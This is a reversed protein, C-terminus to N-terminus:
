RSVAAPLRMTFTSGVGLESEVAISGRHRHVIALGLGTGPQAVACPNSSRFFENFLQDQDDASIGIGEDRCSVVVEDEDQSLAVTVSTGPRSYKVANSLVNGLATDLEEPDGLAHVQHAPMDLQITVGARRATLANLEGLDELVPQLAVPAPIIATAPDGVKSLLLLDEIVRQLRLAGREIAGLSSRTTGTHGPDTELMELHGLIATLPNKLEHAVTAILRGKYRDLATLEEVLRHERAFTRANLISRGLDHGIDLAAEAETRSWPPQGEVRTLVLNGV